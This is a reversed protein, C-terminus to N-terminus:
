QLQPSKWGTGTGGGCDKLIGNMRGSGIVVKMVANKGIDAIGPIRSPGTIRKCPCLSEAPFERVGSGAQM